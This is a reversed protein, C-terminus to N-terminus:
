PMEQHTNRTKEHGLEQGTQTYMVSGDMEYRTHDDPLQYATIRPKEVHRHRKHQNEGDPSTNRKLRRYKAAFFVVAIIAVLSCIAGIVIGAIAGGSISPPSQASPSATLTGTQNSAAPPLSSSSTKSVECRVAPVTSAFAMDSRLTLVGAATCGVSDVNGRYVGNSGPECCWGGGDEVTKNGKWLSWRVDPCKPQFKSEQICDEGEKCCWNGEWTDTGTCKLGSPCCRTQGTMGKGCEVPADIPCGTDNVRLAWGGEYSCVNASEVLVMLGFLLFFIRSM